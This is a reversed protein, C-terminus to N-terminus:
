SKSHIKGRPRGRQRTHGDDQRVELGNTRAESRASWRSRRSRRRCPPLSRPIALGAGPVLLDLRQNAPRPRLTTVPGPLPKDSSGTDPTCDPRAPSLTTGRNGERAGPAGRRAPRRGAPLCLHRQQDATEARAPSREPDQGRGAEQRLVRPGRQAPPPDPHGDGHPHRSQAAPERAQEAPLGQAPGLVGRDARDWMGRPWCGSGRASSPRCMWCGSVRQCFSSPWCVM